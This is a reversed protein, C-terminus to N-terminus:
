NSRKELYELIQRYAEPNSKPHFIIQVKGKTDPLWFILRGNETFTFTSICGLDVVYTNREHVFKIWHRKM